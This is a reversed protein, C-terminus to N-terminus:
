PSLCCPPLGLTGCHLKDWPSRPLPPFTFHPTPKRWWERAGTTPGPSLARRPRGCTLSVAHYIMKPINLRSSYFFPLPWLAKPCLFEAAEEIGREGNTVSLESRLNTIQISTNQLFLDLETMHIWHRQGTPHAARGECIHPEGPWQPSSM